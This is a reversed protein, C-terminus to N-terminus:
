NRLESQVKALGLHVYAEVQLVRYGLHGLQAAEPSADLGQEWARLKQQVPQTQGGVRRQGQLPSAQSRVMARQPARCAVDVPALPARGVLALTRNQSAGLRLPALGRDLGLPM